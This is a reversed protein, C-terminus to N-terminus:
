FTPLEILKPEYGLHTWFRVLDAKKLVWTLHNDFPHCQWLEADCWLARDIWLEVSRNEDNFLSLGSVCGPKVKLYRMLRESSAFGLRSLNLQRSLSKLDVQTEAHTLLLFHARGYNDRLFLNKIRTGDRKLGLADAEDCTYLPPHEYCLWEIGLDHLTKSLLPRNPHQELLAQPSSM